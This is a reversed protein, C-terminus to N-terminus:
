GDVSRALDELTAFTYGMERWERIITPLIEANVRSTPHLLIVAGNHTNSLIKNIAHSANPQRSNDWDDYAFSWFVTKYGMDSVAKLASKSYKGEPFRFYKSLNLGTIEEYIKELDSLDKKIDEASSSSLDKHNKTHNCIMHGDTVLKTILDGNEIIPHDLVFFAAPVGEDRLTNAISEVNENVYGLDFTLYIRKIESEDSIGTDMYYANYDSVWTQNSDFRPQNNGNRKIYWCESTASASIDLVSLFASFALLAATFRIIKKM